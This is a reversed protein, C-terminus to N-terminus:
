VSSYGSACLTAELKRTRIALSHLEKGGDKKRSSYLRPTKLGRTLLNSISLCARDDSVAVLQAQMAFLASRNVYFVLM